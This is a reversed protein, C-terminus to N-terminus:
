VIYKSVMRVKTSSNYVQKQYVASHEAFLLVNDLSDTIIPCCMQITFM